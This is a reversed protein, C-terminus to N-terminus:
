GLIKRAEESMREPTWPPDWVLTIKVATVGPIEQIAKEVGTTISDHLPCGQTTLTMKLEVLDDEIYINYILGLDLVNIGLEPDYVNKLQAEVAEQTVM